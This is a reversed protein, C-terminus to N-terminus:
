LASYLAYAVLRVGSKAAPESIEAALLTPTLWPALGIQLSRGTSAVYPLVRSLVASRSERSTKASSAAGVAAVLRMVRALNEVVIREVRAIDRGPMPVSDLATHPHVRRRVTEDLRALMRGNIGGLAISLASAVAARDALESSRDSAGSRTAAPEAYEPTYLLAGSPQVSSALVNM